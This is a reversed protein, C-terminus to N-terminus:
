QWAVAMRVEIGDSGLVDGAQPRQQTVYGAGAIRLKVGLRAALTRIERNSLGVLDPCLPAADGRGRQSAVTLRVQGGAACLSGPSPVQQVVVGGKEAGLPEFGLRRLRTVARDTTLHLVDPVTVPDSPAAVALTRNGSSVDTLWDSSRRIERVIRAFLPVASEAAYHHIGEPEDLVTLIVLRPREAPVLGGFSAIFAGPTYGRGDRSKQGTGTKGGASIWDCRAAVGTGESVVRAMAQRLLTALREPMVRRLRVPECVRRSRGDHSGIERVIRPTYLWGGNAVSALALGLQLPTVALEQGIAMTAQSRRSWTAPPKLIGDAQGPYPLATRQGFGFACLDRYFEQASLNAVARAFYVNSSLTFAEMLNLDGYAHGDSNRISFGDFSTDSCDFVTATDLAANALLSVTTFIKFVSGPEYSHNFNRNNWVAADRCPVSRSELLPWSAAALIDGTWPDLILVSGGIAGCEAVSRALETDCIEQLDADLTLVLHDGDHVSEIVVQGLTRGPYASALQWAQGRTGALFSGLGYEFGTASEDDPGDARYFGILAAGVGDLPYVRSRVEDLTVAPEGRLRTLQAPSLAAGRAVVAHAGRAKRLRRELQTRDTGLVESLLAAVSGLRDVRDASVGVRWSTVSLALPRNNRDYLNGREPLIQEQKAWQNRARERYHDHRLIQIHVIRAALCLGVLVIVARLVGFRWVRPRGDSM